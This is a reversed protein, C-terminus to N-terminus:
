KLDIAKILADLREQATKTTNKADAIAQTKLAADSTKKATCDAIALNIESKTPKTQSKDLWKLNAYDTGILAWEAGPRISPLAETITCALFIAAIKKM